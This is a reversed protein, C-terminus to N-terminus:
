RVRVVLCDALLDHLAQKKETFGALLFGILLLLASLIKAVNRRTVRGFSPRGGDLTVVKMGLAKKGLTAQWSSSELLIYYVLWAPLFMIQGIAEGLKEWQKEDMAELSGAAGLFIGVVIAVGFALVVLSVVVAIYDLLYALFRLWFGAYALESIPAPAPTGAPVAAPEAPPPEVPAPEAVNRGCFQCFRADPSIEMGCHSCYM